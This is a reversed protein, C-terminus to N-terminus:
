DRLPRGEADTPNGTMMLIGDITPWLVGVGCTLWTVALQAFALGIHGTYFRGASVIGLFIQLMGATSKQKDSYPRGTRPEIGWPANALATGPPPLAAASGPPGFYQQPAEEALTGNSLMIMPAQYGVQRTEGEALQLQMAAPGCEQTHLYPFFCRIEHVGAPVEFAHLGWPLPRTVGDLQVRPTIGGLIFSLPNYGLKIQLTPM